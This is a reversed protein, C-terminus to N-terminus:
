YICGDSGNQPFLNRIAIWGTVSNLETSSYHIYIMLTSEFTGFPVTKTDSPWRSCLFAMRVKSYIAETKSYPKQSCRKYLYFLNFPNTIPWAACFHHREYFPKYSISHQVLGTCDSHSDLQSQCAEAAIALNPSGAM